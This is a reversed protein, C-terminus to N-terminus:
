KVKISCPKTWKGYCVRTKGTSLRVKTFARIKFYYRKGKKLKGTTYRVKGAQNITAIRTYKGNSKTARWIQYGTVANTKKWSVTVKHKKAAKLKLKLVKQNQAKTIAAQDKQKNREAVSDGKTEVPLQARMWAVYM